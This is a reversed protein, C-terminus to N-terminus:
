VTTARGARRRRLIAGVILFSGGILFIGGVVLSGIAIGPLAPYTAGLDAGMGIGPRGDANMVVVTWSGNAPDWTRTQAGPGTASAVWFDQTGPASAPAGGEITEVQNGWFESILTHNVGTLYRDVDNSPGIGMFVPSDSGVPTVRIRVEGLVVSSYFWGVGPSDLEVPDTVLASGSTSFSHVDTTVYGAADRQTLDAWLATGGAGLLGISVLVLLAGIVLATIRGATWRSAPAGTAPRFPVAPPGGPGRERQALDGAPSAAPSVRSDTMPVVGGLSTDRRRPGHQIPQAPTPQREHSRFRASSRSPPESPWM